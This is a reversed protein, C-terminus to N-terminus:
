SFSDRSLHLARSPARALFLAQPKLKVPKVPFGGRKPFSTCLRVLRCHGKSLLM